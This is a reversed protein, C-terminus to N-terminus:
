KLYKNESVIVIMIERACNCDRYSELIESALDRVIVATSYKFM